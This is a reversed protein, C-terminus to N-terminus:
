RVVVVVLSVMTVMILISKGQPLCQVVPQTSQAVIPVVLLVITPDITFPAFKMAKEREIWEVIVVVVVVVISSSSLELFRENALM